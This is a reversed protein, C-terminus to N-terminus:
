VNGSSLKSVHTAHTHTYILAIAIADKVDVDSISSLSDVSLLAFLEESVESPKSARTVVGSLLSRAGCGLSRLLFHM